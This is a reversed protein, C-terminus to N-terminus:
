ATLHLTPRDELRDVPGYIGLDLFDFALGM